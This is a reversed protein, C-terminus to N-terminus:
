LSNRYNREWRKLRWSFSLVPFRRGLCRFLGHEDIWLAYAVYNPDTSLLREEVWARLVYVGCFAMFSLGYSINARLTDMSMFPLFTLTWALCKAVYVPHKCVRFPGNTIIGRNSLHSARLCSIAEGWYHILSFLLLSIGVCLSATGSTGFWHLWPLTPAHPDMILWGAGTGHNLPPYCFFTVMWGFWSQDIKKNETGLIRTSFVYGPIIAFVLLALIANNLLDIADPWAATLVDSEKHRFGKVLLVAACFNLPLFFGKVLWGFLGDRVINWNIEKYRQLVILGFHWSHDEDPGLRWETWLVWFFIIPPVVPLVRPLAKFLPAYDKHTYEPIFLWGFLVLSLGAMIGISKILARNITLRLPINPKTARLAQSSRLYELPIMYAMVLIIILLSLTVNSLSTSRLLAYSTSIIVALVFPDTWHACSQPPKQSM